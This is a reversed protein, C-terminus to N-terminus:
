TYNRYQLDVERRVKGQIKIEDEFIDHKNEIVNNVYTPTKSLSTIISKLAGKKIFEKVGLLNNGSTLESGAKEEFEVLVAYCVHNIM